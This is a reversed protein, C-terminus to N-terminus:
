ELVILKKSATHTESRLQYHYVGMTPLDSRRIMVENYGKFYNGSVEKVVKGSMDIISLTAKSAEPLNFSIITQNDFPNPQNQFLTFEQNTGTFKLEVGMVEHDITYAESTTYRSNISISNSINGKGKAKFVLEFMNSNLIEKNTNWSFTIAGKELLAFGFNEDTTSSNSNQKIGVFELTNQDFNLTFQLGALQKIQDIDFAVNVLEDNTFSKENASITIKDGSRESTGILTNPIATNNVDGVKIGVFDANTNTTLGSITKIETFAEKLPQLTTFQYNKDVFRWSKNGNPFKDNIYLIMKRLEVMDATSIKGDKNVDAAIQKYPTNLATIALIHKNIAVLDATTVGNMVEIDKEPEISYNTGKTLNPFQFFGNSSTVFNNNTSIKVNVDQVDEGVETKIAGTITAKDSSSCSCASPIINDQVQVTTVCYDWNGSQDGVYMYVAVPSNCVDTCTFIISNALTDPLLSVGRSLRIKLNSMPTCNDSSFNNVHLSDMRVMGTAMIDISSLRCTPTPAKSDKVNVLFNRYVSNGCDDEVLYRVSYTGAPVNVFLYQNSTRSAVPFDTTVVKNGNLVSQSVCADVATFQPLLLSDKICTTNIFGYTLTSGEAPADTITPSTNDFVKIVQQYEWRGSGGGTGQYQCWDIITWTRLLKFCPLTDNSNPAKKFVDDKYSVLVQDCSNETIVPRGMVSPDLNPNCTAPTLVTDKPWVVGDTPDLPDTSNIFFPKSNQITIYQKVSDRLGTKDTVVFTRIITGIGCSNISPIFTQTITPVGCNDTSYGDIGVGVLDSTGDNYKDIRISDRTASGIVIKGFKSNLYSVSLSKNDLANCEISLNPPGVIFPKVKDQINVSIMCTNSNGSCDWVRMVVMETIDNCNFTISPRYLTDDESMRKVEFRDICCDYSGEDFNKAPIPSTTDGVLNITTATRCIAVPQSKDEIVLTRDKSTFNGCADTVTYRITYTGAKIAQNFYGGNSIVGGIISDGLPTTVLISTNVTVNSSCNDYAGVPPITVYASCSGISTTVNLTSLTSPTIYPKVTDLVYIWQNVMVWNPTCRDEIMWTRLVKRTNISCMTDTADFFTVRLNCIPDMSPNLTLTDVNEFTSNQVILSPYGTVQPRVDINQCNYLTDNDIFVLSSLLAPKTLAIKQYCKSVNNYFDTVTFTRIITDPYLCKYTTSYDSFISSKIPSCDHYIVSGTNAIDTEQGCYVSLNPPCTLSPGVKDEIKVNAWCYNGTITNILRAKLTLGIHSTTATNNPVQQGNAGILFVDFDADCAFGEGIMLPIITAQCTSSDISVNIDKCVTATPSQSVQVSVFMSDACEGADVTFNNNGDFFPIVRVTATQPVGLVTSTFTINRTNLLTFLASPVPIPFSFPGVFAPFGDINMTVGTPINIEINAKLTSNIDNNLDVFNDIRFGGGNCFTYFASDNAPSPLNRLLDVRGTPAGVSNLETLNLGVNPPTVSLQTFGTACNTIGNLIPFSYDLIGTFTPDALDFSGGTATYTLTGNVAATWNVDPKYTATTLDGIVMPSIPSGSCVERKTVIIGSNTIASGPTNATTNNGFANYSDVLIGSNTFSTALHYSALFQNHPASTLFIASNVYSGTGSINGTKSDITSCLNTNSLTGTNNIATLSTVTGITIKGNSTNLFTSSNDIGLVVPGCTSPTGIEIVSGTFSDDINNFTADNDIAVITANGIYINGPSAPSYAGNFFTGSVNNIGKSTTCISIDADLYNVFFQGSVGTQNVIADLTTNQINIISNVGGNGFYSYNTIGSTIASNINITANLNQFNQVVTNSSTGNVIGSTSPNNIDIQAANSNTFSATALVENNMIGETATNSILITTGNGDNNFTGMNNIGDATTTTNINIDAGTNNNFVAGGEVSIGQRCTNLIISGNTTNNIIGAGLGVRIGNTIANNIEISGDTNNVIGGTNTRLGTPSNSIVINGTPSNTFVANTTNTIGDVAIDSINITLNNTFTANTNIIGMNTTGAGLITVIGNNTFTGTNFNRIGDGTASLPNSINVSGTANVILTGTNNVANTSRVTTNLVGDVTLSAGSLVNTGIANTADTINLTLTNPIIAIANAQLTLRTFASSIATGTSPDNPTTSADPIVLVDVGALSALGPFGASWNTALNWDTSTSGNWTYTAASAMWHM